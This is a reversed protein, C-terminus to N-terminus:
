RELRDLRHEFSNLREDQRGITVMVDGIKAIDKRIGSVDEKLLTIDGRMTYMVGAGAVLFTLASVIHGLNITADFAVSM